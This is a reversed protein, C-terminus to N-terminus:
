AAFMGSPYIGEMLIAGGPAMMYNAAYGTRYQRHCAVLLDRTQKVLLHRRLDSDRTKVTMALDGAVTMPDPGAVFTPGRDSKVQQRTSFAALAADHLRDLTEPAPIFELMRCAATETGDETALLRHQDVAAYVVESITQRLCGTTRYVVELAEWEELAMAKNIVDTTKRSIDQIWLRAVSLDFGATEPLCQDGQFPRVLNNIYYLTDAMLRFVQAVNEPMQFATTERVCADFWAQNLESLRKPSILDLGQQLYNDVHGMYPHAATQMLTGYDEIVAVTPNPNAIAVM